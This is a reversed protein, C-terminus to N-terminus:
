EKIGKLIHIADLIWEDIISKQFLVEETINKLENINYERLKFGVTTKDEILLVNNYYDIRFSQHEANSFWLILKSGNTSLQIYYLLLKLTPHEIHEYTIM